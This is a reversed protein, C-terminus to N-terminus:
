HFFFFFFLDPWSPREVAKHEWNGWSWRSGQYLFVLNADNPNLLLTVSIIIRVVQWLGRRSWTDCCKALVILFINLMLINLFFLYLQVRTSYQNKEEREWLSLSLSGTVRIHWLRLVAKECHMILRDCDYCLAKNILALCKEESPDYNSLSGARFSHRIWMKSVCKLLSLM